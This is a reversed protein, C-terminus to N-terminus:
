FLTDRRLTWAQVSRNTIKCARVQSFVVLGDEVLENRRASVTNSRIGSIEEIERDTFDFGQRYIELVKEAQDKRQGTSVNLHYNKVSTPAIM